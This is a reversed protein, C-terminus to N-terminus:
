FKGLIHCWVTSVVQYEDTADPCAWLERDFIDIPQRDISLKSRDLFAESLCCYVVKLTPIGHRGYKTAEKVAIRRPSVDDDAM